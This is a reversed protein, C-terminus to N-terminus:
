KEERELILIAKQLEAVYKDCDTNGLYGETNERYLEEGKIELVSIAYEFM